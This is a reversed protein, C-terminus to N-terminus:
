QSVLSVSIDPRGGQLLTAGLGYMSADCHITVLTNVDYHM